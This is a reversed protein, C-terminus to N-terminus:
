KYISIIVNVESSQMEILKFEISSQIFDIVIILIDDRMDNVDNSVFSFRFYKKWRWWWGAADNLELLM